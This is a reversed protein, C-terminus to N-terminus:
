FKLLISTINHTNQGFQELLVEHENDLHNTIRTILHYLTIIINIITDSVLIERMNNIIIYNDRFSLDTNLLQIFINLMVHHGGVVLLKQCMSSGTWLLKHILSKGEFIENLDTFSFLYLANSLASHLLSYLRLKRLIFYTKFKLLICRWLM